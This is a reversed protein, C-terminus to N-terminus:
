FSSGDNVKIAFLNSVPQEVINEEIVQTIKEKKFDQKVQQLDKKSLKPKSM